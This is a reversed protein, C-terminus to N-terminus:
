SAPVTALATNLTTRAGSAFTTNNLNMEAGATSISGDVRLFAAASDIAGADAVSGCYRFWGAAGAAVNDGAWTQGTYIAAIGAASFDFKLGNAATVGSAMAAYSATITTLTAAVAFTNVSAGTGPLAKITVVAGSASATYNPSSKWRNIQAAVDTATQDLTANFAVSAGLINISNVTVTDVSGSAGGTLTVTGTALVEATRAGANDTVTCLLTGTQAADASAPQTGTLIRLEGQWLADNYSGLSNVFNRMATSMRLTM